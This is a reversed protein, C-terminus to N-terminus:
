LAHARRELEGAAATSVRVDGLLYADILTRALRDDQAGREVVGLNGNADARVDAEIEFTDLDAVRGFRLWGAGGVLGLEAMEVRSPGVPDIDVTSTARYRAWPGLGGSAHAIQRASMGRLRGTLRHREPGAIRPTHGLTLLDLAAERVMPSWRRGRVVSRQWAQAALDDVVLTRGVRRHAALSGGEVAAQVTRPTCGQRRAVDALTLEM